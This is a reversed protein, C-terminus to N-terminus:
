DHMFDIKQQQQSTSSEPQYQSNDQSEQGPVATVAAAGYPTSVVQADIGNHRMIMMSSTAVVSNVTGAILANELGSNAFCSSSFLSILCLTKIKM